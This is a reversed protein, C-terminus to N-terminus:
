STPRKWVSSLLLWLRSRGANEERTISRAYGYRLGAREGAERDISMVAQEAFRRVQEDPDDLTRILAPIAPLAGEGGKELGQVAILRAHPERSALLETLVPVAAADAELLPMPRRDGNEDTRPEDRVWGMMRYGIVQGSFGPEWHTIEAQWKAATM